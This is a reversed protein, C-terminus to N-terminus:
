INSKSNSSSINKNDIIFSRKRHSLVTKNYKDFGKETKPEFMQLGNAKAALIKKSNNSM